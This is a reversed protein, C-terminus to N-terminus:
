GVGAAALLWGYAPTGQRLQQTAIVALLVVDAGYLMAAITRTGLLPWTTRATTRYVEESAADAAAAPATRAVNGRWQRVGALLAASAVFTVGHLAFLVSPTSVALVLSAIAPGVATAVAESTSILLATRTLESEVVLDAALALAASSQIRAVSSSLAAL